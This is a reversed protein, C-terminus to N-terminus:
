EKPTERLPQHHKYLELRHTYGQESNTAAFTKGMKNKPIPTETKKVAMAQEQYRVAADFDGAEACAAALTDIYQGREWKVLDCAKKADEVARKGDRISANQCTARLWARENLIMALQSANGVQFAVKAVADLDRMAAPYNGMLVYTLARQWSAAVFAPQLRITENFDKIAASWNGEMRFATARNEYATWRDPELRIAADFYKRSEAYKGKNLLDNGYNDYQLATWGSPVGSETPKAAAFSLVQSCLLIILTASRKVELKRAM